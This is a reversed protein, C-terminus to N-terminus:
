KSQNLELRLGNVSLRTRCAIHCASLRSPVTFSRNPSRADTACAGSAWPTIPAGFSDGYVYSGAFAFCSSVSAPYGFPKVVEICHGSSPPGFMRASACAIIESQAPQSTAAM